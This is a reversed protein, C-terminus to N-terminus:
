RVNAQVEDCSKRNGPAHHGDGHEHVAESLCDVQNCQQSQVRGLPHRFKEKSMYNPEVAEWTVCDGVPPGLDSGAEPLGEAM